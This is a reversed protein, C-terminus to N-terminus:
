RRQNYVDICVAGPLVLGKVVQQHDFGIGPIAMGKNMVGMIEAGIVGASGTSVAMPGSAM